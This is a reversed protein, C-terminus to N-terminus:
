VIKKYNKRNIDELVDPSIQELYERPYYGTFIGQMYGKVMIATTFVFDLMFFMFVVSSGFHVYLLARKFQITEANILTSPHIFYILIGSLLLGGGTAVFFIWVIRKSPKHKGAFFFSLPRSKAFYRSDKFAMFSVLLWIPLWGMGVIEHTARLFRPIEGGLSRLGWTINFGSVTLYTVILINIWIVFLQFVSFVRVRDKPNEIKPTKAGVFLYILAFVVIEALYVYFIFIQRENSARVIEPAITEYAPGFLANKMEEYHNQAPVIIGDIKQNFIVDLKFDFLYKFDLIMLYQTFVVALVGLGLATWFYAQNKKFFSSEM